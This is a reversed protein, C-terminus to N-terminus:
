PSIASPLTEADLHPPGAEVKGHEDVVALFPIARWDLSMADAPLPREARPLLVTWDDVGRAHLHERALEADEDYSIAIVRLPRDRVLEIIEPLQENCPGCWTAWGIILTPAEHPFQEDLCVRTGAHPGLIAPACYSPVQTDTRLPRDPNLLESVDLLATAPVSSTGSPIQIADLQTYLERAHPWDRVRDADEVHLYISQADVLAADHAAAAAHISARLKAPDNTEELAAFLGWALDGAWVPHEPPIDALADAWEAGIGYYAFSAVYAALLWPRDDASAHTITARADTRTMELEVREAETWRVERKGGIRSEAAASKMNRVAVHRWTDITPALHEPVEVSRQNTDAPASLTPEPTPSCALLFALGVRTGVRHM